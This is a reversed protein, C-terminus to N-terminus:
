PIVKALLFCTEKRSSIIDILPSSRLVKPIEFQKGFFFPISTSSLFGSRYCLQYDARNQFQGSYVFPSLGLPYKFAYRRQFNFRDSPSMLYSPSVPLSLTFIDSSAFSSVLFYRFENFACISTSPLIIPEGKISGILRIMKLM